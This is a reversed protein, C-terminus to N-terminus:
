EVPLDLSDSGSLMQVCVKSLDSSMTRFDLSIGCWYSIFITM